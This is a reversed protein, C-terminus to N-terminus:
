NISLIQAGDLNEGINSNNLVLRLGGMLVEKTLLTHPSLAGWHNSITELALKTPKSTFLFVGDFSCIVHNNPISM